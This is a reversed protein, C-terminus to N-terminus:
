DCKHLWKGIKVNTYNDSSEQIGALKVVSLLAM